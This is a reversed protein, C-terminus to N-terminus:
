IYKTKEIEDVISQLGKELAAIPDTKDVFKCRECICAGYKRRDESKCHFNRVVWGEVPCHHLTFGQPMHLRIFEQPTFQAPAPMAAESDLDLDADIQCSLNKTKAM